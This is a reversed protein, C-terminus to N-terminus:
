SNNKSRCSLRQQRISVEADISRMAEAAAAKPEQAPAREQEPITAPLGLAVREAMLLVKDLTGPPPTCNLVSVADQSDTEDM